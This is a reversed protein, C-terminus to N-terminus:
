LRNWQIAMCVGTVVVVKFCQRDEEDCKRSTVFNINEEMEQM